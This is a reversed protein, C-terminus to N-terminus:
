RAIVQEAAQIDPAADGEATLRWHPTVIVNPYGFLPHQTVPESRFM